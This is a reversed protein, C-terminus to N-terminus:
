REKKTKLPFGLHELRLDRKARAEDAAERVAQDQLRMAQAERELRGALLYAMFGSRMQRPM